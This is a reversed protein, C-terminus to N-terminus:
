KIWNDILWDIDADEPIDVLGFNLGNLRGISNPPYDENDTDYDVIKIEGGSPSFTVGLSNDDDPNDSICVSVQCGLGFPGLVEIHKNPFRKKLDKVILNYFHSFYSPREKNRHEEETLRLTM